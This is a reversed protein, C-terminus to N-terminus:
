ESSISRGRMDLDRQRRHRKLVAVVGAGVAAIGAAAAGVPAVAIGATALVPVACCAACAAALVTAERVGKM